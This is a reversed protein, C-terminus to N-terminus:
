QHGKYIKVSDEILNKNNVIADDVIKNLAEILRPRKQKFCIDIKRKLDAVLENNHPNESIRDELVWVRQHLIILKELIEGFNDTNVYSYVDSQSNNINNIRKKIFREIIEGLSEEM